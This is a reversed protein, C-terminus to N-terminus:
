YSDRYITKPIIHLLINTGPMCKAIQHIYMHDSVPKVNQEMKKSISFM